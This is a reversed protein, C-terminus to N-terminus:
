KKAYREFEDLQKATGMAILSGPKVKWKFPIDISYRKAKATKAAMIVIGTDKLIDLKTKKSLTSGKRVNIEQLVLHETRAVNGLFRATISGLDPIKM